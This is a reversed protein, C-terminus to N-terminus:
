IQNGNLINVKPTFNPLSPPYVANGGSVEGLTLCLAARPSGRFVNIFVAGRFVTLRTNTFTAAFTCFLFFVSLCLFRDAYLKKSKKVLLPEIIDQLEKETM